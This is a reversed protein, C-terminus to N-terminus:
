TVGWFALTRDILWYSSITGVLYGAAYRVTTERKEFWNRVLAGSLVMIAIFLIQGLEVGLNFFLLGVPLETQPLGIERLVSAFGFGHLLGFSIAVSQPYRYTWSSNDEHLLELGLFVISLAIVAEVPLIPLAVIGLASLVLTVSHAVTFGTITVLVRRWRGADSRGAIFLLCLVFLLHDIGLWIHKVGLCGYQMAVSSAQEHVPMLWQDDGPALIISHKGGGTLTVRFVTSLSPNPIPFRLGVSKGEIPEDCLYQSQILTSGPLSVRSNSSRICGDPVVLNPPVSIADPVNMKVAYAPANGLQSIEIAIPRADHGM